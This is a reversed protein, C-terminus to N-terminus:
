YPRTDEGGKNHTLSRGCLISSRMSVDCSILPTEQVSPAEFIHNASHAITDDPPAVLSFAICAEKLESAPKVLEHEFPWDEQFPTEKPSDAHTSNTDTNSM